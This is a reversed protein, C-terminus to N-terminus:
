PRQGESEGGALRRREATLWGYYRRLMFRGFPKAYHLRVDVQALRHQPYPSLFSETKTILRKQQPWWRLTNFVYGLPDSLLAWPLLVPWLLASLGLRRRETPALLFLLAGFVTWPYILNLWYWLNM